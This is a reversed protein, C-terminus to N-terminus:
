YRKFVNVYAILDTRSGRLPETAQVIAKCLEGQHKDNLDTLYQFFESYNLNPYYGSYYLSIKKAMIMLKM